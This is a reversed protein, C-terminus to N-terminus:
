FKAPKFRKANIISASSGTARIVFLGNREAYVESGEDAKLYAVAGYVIKDKHEPFIEKFIDLKTLYYDVDVVKMTTKVEIAVVETGNIVILDFEYRKGQWFDKRRDAFRQVEINREQLLEVIDGKVLTEILLGWKSTYTGEVKNFHKEMELKSKEFLRNTEKLRCDAEERSEKLMRDNEERSEKLRRDAEERSEKLMRDNEIKSEKLIQETERLIQETEQQSKAIEKLIDRVEDFNTKQTKTKM